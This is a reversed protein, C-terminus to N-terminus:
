RQHSPLALAEALLGKQERTLEATNASCVKVLVIGLVAKQKDNMATVKGHFKATGAIKPADMESLKGDFAEV